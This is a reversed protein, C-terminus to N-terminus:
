TKTIFMEFIKNVTMIKRFMPFYMVNFLFYLTIYTIYWHYIYIVFLIVNIASTYVSIRIYIHTYVMAYLIYIRIYWLIGAYISSISTIYKKNYTYGVRRDIIRTSVTILEASYTLIVIICRSVYVGGISAKSSRADPIKHYSRDTYPINM